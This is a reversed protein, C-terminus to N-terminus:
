NCISSVFLLIMKLLLQQGKIHSLLSCSVKKIKISFEWNREKHHAHLLEALTFKKPLLM